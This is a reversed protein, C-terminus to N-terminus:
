ANSLVLISYWVEGPQGHLDFNALDEAYFSDWYSQFGLISAEVDNADSEDKDSSGFFFILITLIFIFVYINFNWKNGSGVLCTRRFSVLTDFEIIRIKKAILQYPLYCNSLLM